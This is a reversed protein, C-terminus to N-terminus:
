FTSTRFRIPSSCSCCRLCRHRHHHRITISTTGTATLTKHEKQRISVFYLVCVSSPTCTSQVQVHAVRRCVNGSCAAFLYISIFQFDQEVNASKWKNRHRKFKNNTNTPLSEKKEIGLVTRWELADFKVIPSRFTHWEIQIRALYSNNKWKM